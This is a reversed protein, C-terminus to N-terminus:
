RIHEKKKMEREVKNEKSKTKKIVPQLTAYMAQHQSTPLKEYMGNQSTGNSTGNPQVGNQQDNQYYESDGNENGGGGNNGNSSQTPREFSSNPSQKLQAPFEPLLTHWPFTTNIPRDYM